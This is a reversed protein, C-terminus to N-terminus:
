FGVRGQPENNRYLFLSTLTVQLSLYNYDYAPESSWSQGSYSLIGAENTCSGPLSPDSFRCNPPSTCSNDEMVFGRGYFGYGMVVNSPSIGNRWLLDLGDEIETTNTHGKLYPGTFKLKKDWTGHIDYTMVNFWDVHEELRKIDFGRLYWYSSPLTITLQWGPDVSNFAKKINACLIVFNDFDVPKGGRDDAAPYEWDIDAGDLSYKQMYDILSDIFIQQNPYTSAMKSFRDRTPPDNFTWGGIAVNVRLGPYTRKLRSTRAMISGVKGEIKHDETIYEFAVNIHTLVGAPINEPQIADCDRSAGWAGYYAIRVESKM